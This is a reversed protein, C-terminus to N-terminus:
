SNGMLGRRVGAMRLRASHQTAAIKLLFPVPYYYAKLCGAASYCTRQKSPRNERRCMNVSPVTPRPQSSRDCHVPLFHASPNDCHLRTHQQLSIVFNNGSTDTVLILSRTTKLNETWTAWFEKIVKGSSRRTRQLHLLCSLHTSESTHWDCSWGGADVGGGGWGKMRTTWDTTNM